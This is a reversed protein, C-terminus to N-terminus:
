DGAMSPRVAGRNKGLEDFFFGGYGDMWLDTALILHGSVSKCLRIRIASGFFLLGRKILRTSWTHRAQHVQDM